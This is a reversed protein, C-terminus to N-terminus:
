GLYEQVIYMTTVYLITKETKHCNKNFVCTRDSHSHLENDSSFPISNSQTGSVKDKHAM